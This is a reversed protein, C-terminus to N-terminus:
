QFKSMSRLSLHVRIGQLIRKTDSAPLKFHFEKPKFNLSNLYYFSYSVKPIAIKRETFYCQM